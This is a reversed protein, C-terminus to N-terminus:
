AEAEADNGFTVGDYVAALPLRADIATLDAVAELGEWLEISWLGSKHRTFATVAPRLSAVLVYVRMSAIDRYADFKAGRDDGETSDSLVEVVGAPNLLTIRKHKGEGEPKPFEPQGCVIPVDPYVYEGRNRISVRMDSSLVHCPKGKLSAHLTAAVNAGIRSHEYTGGSMARVRGDRYEHRLQVEKEFALYETETMRPLVPSTEAPEPM